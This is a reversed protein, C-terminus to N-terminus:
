LFNLIAMPWFIVKASDRAQITESPILSEVYKLMSGFAFNEEAKEEGCCVGVFIPVPLFFLFDKPEDGGGEFGPALTCFDPVLFVVILFLRALHTASESSLSVWSLNSEVSRWLLIWAEM